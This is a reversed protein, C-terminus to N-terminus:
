GPLRHLRIAPGLLASQRNRNRVKTRRHFDNIRSHLIRYFLPTWENEPRDGYKEVLKFMTDQVVDLADEANGTAFQAIRFARAQVEHLFKDM